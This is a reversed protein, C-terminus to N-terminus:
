SRITPMPKDKDLFDMMLMDTLQALLVGAQCLQLARKGPLKVKTALEHVFIHRTRFLEDLDALLHSLYNKGWAFTAWSAVSESSLVSEFKEGLLVSM